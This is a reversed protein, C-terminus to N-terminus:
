DAYGALRSEWAVRLTLGLAIGTTIMFSGGYSFFPLPIGTIPMLNVTMGINEWMHTLLLGLIGFVVLGGFPDTARRAIRLLTLFFGFFLGLAVCIGVIGAGLVIPGPTEVHFRLWPPTIREASGIREIICFYRSSCAHTPQPLTFTAAPCSASGAIYTLGTPLTDTVQV